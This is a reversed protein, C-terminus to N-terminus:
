DRMEPQQMQVASLLQRGVWVCVRVCVFLWLGQATHAHAHTSVKPMQDFSSAM